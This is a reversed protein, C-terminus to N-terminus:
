QRVVGSVFLHEILVPTSIYSSIHFSGRELRKMCGLSAIAFRLVGLASALTVAEQVWM